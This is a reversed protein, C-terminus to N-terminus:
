FSTVMFDAPIQPFSKFLRIKKAVGTTTEAESIVFRGQPASSNHEITLKAGEFQSSNSLVRAILLHAQMGEDELNKEEKFNWKESENKSIIDCPDIIRRYINTQSGKEIFTLEVAFKKEEKECDCLTPSDSIKIKGKYANGTIKKQEDDFSALYFTYQGDKLIKPTTFTKEGVLETEATIKKIGAFSLSSLDTDGSELVKEIGAEAASYAIKSAQELEALKIDETSTRLLTIAIVAGVALILLGALLAQGKKLSKSKTKKM